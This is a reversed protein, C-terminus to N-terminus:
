DLRIDYVVNMTEMVEKTRHICKVVSYKYKGILSAKGCCSFVDFSQVLKDGAIIRAIFEGKRNGTTAVRVIQPFKRRVM